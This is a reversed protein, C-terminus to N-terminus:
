VLVRYLYQAPQSLQPARLITYRLHRREPSGPELSSVCTVAHAGFCSPKRGKGELTADNSMCRAKYMWSNMSFIMSSTSAYPPCLSSAHRARVQRRNVSGASFLSQALGSSPAQCRVCRM